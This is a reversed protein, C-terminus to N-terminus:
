LIPPTYGDGQDRVIVQGGYISRLGTIPVMFEFDRDSTTRCLHNWRAVGMGLCLFVIYGILIGWPFRNEVCNKGVYSVCTVISGAIYVAFIYFLIVIVIIFWRPRHTDANMKIQCSRPQGCFHVVKIPGGQRHNRWTAENVDRDMVRIDKSDSQFSFSIKYHNVTREPEEETGETLKIKSICHDMHLVVGNVEVVDTGSKLEECRKIIDYCRWLYHLICALVFGMLAGVSVELWLPAALDAM